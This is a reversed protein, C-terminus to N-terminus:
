IEEEIEIKEFLSRIEQAPKFKIAAKKSRDKKVSVGQVEFRGIGKVVLLQDGHKKSIQVGSGQYKIKPNKEAMYEFPITFVNQFIDWAREKSTRVGVSFLYKRVREILENTKEDKKQLRKLM